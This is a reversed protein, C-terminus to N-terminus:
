FSADIVVLASPSSLVFRQGAADLFFAQCYAVLSEEGPPLQPAAAAVVLTGSPPITAVLAKFRPMGLLYEGDYFRSFSGPGPLFAFRLWVRDGPLGTFTAVVMEDTRVPSGIELSRASGGLAVVTGQVVNLDQGDAGSSCGGSFPAGGAGGVLSSDLRVLTSAEAVVLAAGGEQGNCFLISNGDAGDGGHVDSGFLELFSSQGLEVAASLGGTARGQVTGDYFHLRSNQSRLATSPVILPVAHLSCRSLVVTACNTPHVGGAVLDFQPQFVCREFWLPGADDDFDAVIENSTFTLGQILVRGAAPLNRIRARTTRVVAGPEAVVVLGKGDLFIGETGFGDLFYDGGRVLVVDGDLAAGVAAGLTTFDTGPGNAADVVHVQGQSVLLLSLAVTSLLM